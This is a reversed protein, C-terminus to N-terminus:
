YITPQTKGNELSNLTKKLDEIISEVTAPTMPTPTLKEELELVVGEGVEKILNARYVDLNGHLTQNCNKCQPRANRLSWRWRFIGRTVYHGCELQTTVKKCTYCRVQGFRVILSFLRDAEKILKNIPSKPNSSLRSNSKLTSAPTKRLGGRKSFGKRNLGGRKLGM